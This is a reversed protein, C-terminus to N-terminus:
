AGFTGVCGRLGGIDGDTSPVLSLSNKGTRSFPRLSRTRKGSRSTVVLNEWGGERRGMRGEGQKCDRM